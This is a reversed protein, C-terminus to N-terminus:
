VQLRWDVSCPVSRARGLGFFTKEGEGLSFLCKEVGSMAIAPDSVLGTAKGGWVAILLVLAANQAAPVGDTGTM